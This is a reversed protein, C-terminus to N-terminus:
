LQKYYIKDHNSSDYEFLQVIFDIKYNIKSSFKQNSALKRDSQRHKPEFLSLDILFYKTQEIHIKLPQHSFQYLTFHNVQIDIEYVVKPM